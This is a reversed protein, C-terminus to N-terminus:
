ALEQLRDVAVQWLEHTSAAVLGRLDDDARYPSRDLRSVKGGAETLFLVGAAHDWALTREYVTLDNLGLAIRPYQEAACRPMPVIDFLGGIRDVLHLRRQPDTFLSSIAATPVVAGSGRSRIPVGDIMAGEGRFASCFRRSRPDFIWGGIPEGRETLAVLIGFPGSGAAFNSTGDLPDVVWCLPDGLQALISRDAAVAEEGVIAAEPLVKALGAALIAESEHDAVTVLEDAAKERMQSRSLQRYRPMVARDAADIMVARVADHLASRKPFM